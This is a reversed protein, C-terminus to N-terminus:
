INGATLRGKEEQLQINRDVYKRIAISNSGTAQLEQIAKNNSAIEDEIAQLRDQTEKNKLYAEGGTSILSTAVDLFVAQKSLVLGVTHEYAQKNM